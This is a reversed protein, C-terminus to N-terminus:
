ANVKGARPAVARKLQDRFEAPSEIRQWACTAGEGIKVGLGQLRQVMAFGMEDTVDDGVFVPARGAFPAEQMFAEIAIGKTAGGPKAEIVMKGRMLVMGPSEDVAARMADHCLAELEPAQRYHLAISGRKVEVRLRPHQAVLSLATAEVSDLPYTSM